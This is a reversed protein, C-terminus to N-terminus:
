SMIYTGLTKLRTTVLWYMSLILYLTETNVFIYNLGLKKPLKHHPHKKDQILKLMTRRLDAALKFKHEAVIADVDIDDRPDVPACPQGNKFRVPVSRPM